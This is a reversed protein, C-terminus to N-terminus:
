KQIINKKLELNGDVHDIHHHTNLIYDLKNYKKIVSDCNNFDSPDIISVTNTENIM